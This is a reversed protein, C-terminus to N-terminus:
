RLLKEVDADISRHYRRGEGKISIGDQRECTETQTHAFHKQIYNEVERQIKVPATIKIHKTYSDNEQKIIAILSKIDQVSTKGYQALFGIMASVDAHTQKIRDRILSTFVIKGHKAVLSKVVSLSTLIADINDDHQAIHQALTQLSTHMSEFFWIFVSVANDSFM